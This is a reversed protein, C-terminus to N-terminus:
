NVNNTHQTGNKGSTATKHDKKAQRYKPHQKLESAVRIICYTWPFFKTFNKKLPENGKEEENRLSLVNQESM